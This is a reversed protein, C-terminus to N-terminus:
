NGDSVTFQQRYKAWLFCCLSILNNFPKDLIMGTFRNSLIQVSIYNTESCSIMKAQLNFNQMLGQMANGSHHSSFRHIEIPKTIKIKM